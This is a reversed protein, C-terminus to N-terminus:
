FHKHSDPLSFSSNDYKKIKPMAYKFLFQQKHSVKYQTQSHKELISELFEIYNNNNLSFHLEKTKVSKEQQKTTTGKGKSSQKLGSYVTLAVTFAYDREPHANPQDLMGALQAGLSNHHKERITRNEQNNM